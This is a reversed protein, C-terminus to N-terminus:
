RERTTPTDVGSCGEQVWSHRAPRRQHVSLACAHMKGCKHSAGGLARVESHLLGTAVPTPATRVCLSPHCSMSWTCRALGRVDEWSCNLAAPGAAPALRQPLPMRSAIAARRAKACLRRSRVHLTVYRRACEGWKCWGASGVCCRACALSRSTSRLQLLGSLAAPPCSTCM